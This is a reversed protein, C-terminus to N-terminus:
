HETPVVASAAAWLARVGMLPPTEIRVDAEDETSVDTPM